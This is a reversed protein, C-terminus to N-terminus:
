VVNYFASPTDLYYDIKQKMRKNSRVYSYHYFYIDNCFLSPIDQNNITVPLTHINYKIDGTLKLNILSKRGTFQEWPGKSKHGFDQWFDHFNFRFAPVEPRAFIVHEVRKLTEKDWVEDGDIIFAYDSDGLLNCYANRQETKDKWLKNCHSQKDGNWVEGHPSPVVIIKNEPDDINKLIDVTKDSSRGQETAYKKVAETGGEVVIIKHVFDYISKISYEIYDEENFVIYCATVKPYQCIKSNRIWKQKFTEWNKNFTIPTPGGGHSKSQFHRLNTEACYYTKYGKEEAELCYNSDEFYGPSYITDWGGLEKWLKTPTMFCAGTVVDIIESVCVRPDNRDTGYLRHIYNMDKKSFVMGAHQITNNELLLKAGVVGINKKTKFVDLMNRFSKPNLLETDSNLHLIYEGIVEEAAIKTSLLFGKSVTNHIVKISPFTSLYDVVNQDTSADNICIIEYEVDEIKLLSKICKVFYQYADKVPIIISLETKKMNIEKM